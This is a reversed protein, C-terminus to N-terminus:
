HRWLSAAGAGGFQQLQRNTQIVDDMKAKTRHHDTRLKLYASVFDEASSTEGALFKEAVAESAEEEVTAKAKLDAGISAMTNRGRAAEVRAELSAVRQCLAGHSATLRDAESKKEEM